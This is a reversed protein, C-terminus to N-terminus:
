LNNLKLEILLADQATAHTKAQEYARRAATKDGKASLIDGTLVQKQLDWAKSQIQSLTEMASDFETLQYHINALRFRIVDQLVNDNTLALANQLAIKSATFNDQVAFQKAQELLAFVSYTSHANEAVFKEILPANENPNQLYYEMTQQYKASTQQATQLQRNQWYNWGFVASAALLIAVLIPVGNQKFWNKAEEFQQEETKNLYENM